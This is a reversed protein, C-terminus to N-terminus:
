KLKITLLAEILAEDLVDEATNYFISPMAQTSIVNGESNIKNIHAGFEGELYVNTNIVLFWKKRLWLRLLEQTPASFNDEYENWNEPDDFFDPQDNGDTFTWQVELDFGKERALKATRLNIRQLEM